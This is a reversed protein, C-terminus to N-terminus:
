TALYPALAWGGSFTVYMCMISRDVVEEAAAAFDADDDAVVLLTRLIEDPVALGAGPVRLDLV